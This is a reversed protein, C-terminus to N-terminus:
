GLEYSFKLSIAVELSLSRRIMLEGGEVLVVVSRRFIKSHCNGARRTMNMEMPIMIQAIAVIPIVPSMKIFIKAQNIRM